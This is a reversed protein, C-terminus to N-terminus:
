AGHADHAAGQQRAMWWWRLVGIVRAVGVGSIVMVPAQLPLYYRQWEFPTLALLLGAVVALWVLTVWAAGARWREFLTALGIAFAVVVLGGWLPGTPRGALWADEYAAISDAIWTEWIAVEFYQPEAFFAQNLLGQVRADFSEYGGYYDVQNALLDRRLDLVRGPMALPDGWWAPNLALFIVLALAGAGALGALHARWTVERRAAGADAGRGLRRVVPAVLAAAGVALVVMLANHKSTVALGASLGLAAYWAARVRWGRGSAEARVVGIAALATLATFFLLTGEMMARQGNILVAPTTAYLASAAYAAARGRGVLWAIVFVVGVSLATLVTAPIRSVELLRESPAHNFAHNYTWEDWEGSPDDFGWIWEDNLDDVTMGAMDWAFGILLKGLTGNIIRLDQESPNAPTDTYRVQAPDQQQVLYHYDHSMFIQTAEDGHFPNRTMGAAVYLALLALWIVDLARWWRRRTGNQM